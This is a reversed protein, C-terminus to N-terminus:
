HHKLYAILVACVTIIVVFVALLWEGWEVTVPLRLSHRWEEKKQAGFRRSFFYALGTVAAVIIWAADLGLGINGGGNGV